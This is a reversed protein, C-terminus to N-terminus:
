LVKRWHSPSAGTTKRFVKSLQSGDTFGVASAVQQISWEPRVLLLKARAIRMQVIYHHPTAGTSERFSRAFHFMSLGTLASLEQLRIDRHLNEAIYAIVQRLRQRSLGGKLPAAPPLSTRGYKRILAISLSMGLLDGYLSGMAWGASMERDMETMLLRLQDDHFSWQNDFDFLGKWEMEEAARTLLSPHISAVIRQSLGHWEVSDQTGPALLILNGTVSKVHGNKGASHWDMEVPGSTQLQLCFTAHEHKPIDVAAHHHRELILGTWPSRESGSVPLGPFLPVSNSGVLVSVRRSLALHGTDPPRPAADTTTMKDSRPM